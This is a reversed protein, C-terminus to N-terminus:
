RRLADFNCYIINPFHLSINRLSHLWFFNSRGFLLPHESNRPLLTRENLEKNNHLRFLLLGSPKTNALNQCYIPPLSLYMRAQYHGPGYKVVSILIRITKLTWRRVHGKVM